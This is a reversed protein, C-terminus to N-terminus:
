DKVRGEKVYVLKSCNTCYINITEHHSSGYGCTGCGSSLQYFDTTMRADYPANCYPCLIKFSENM